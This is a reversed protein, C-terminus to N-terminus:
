AALTRAAEYAKPADGDIRELARADVQLATFAPDALPDFEEVPCGFGYRHALRNAAYAIVAAVSGPAREPHHHFAVAERLTPPLQWWTILQGGCEAHRATMVAAVESAAPRAIGAAPRSALQHILLKGIDHLLGYVFADDRSAGALDALMMAVHATGIGHDVVERGSNGYAGKDSLISAVCIATMVHRASETGVRVVADNISTIPARAGHAASNALQLVRTALVPDKKVVNAIRVPSVHPDTSFELVERAVAPVMPVADRSASWSGSEVWEVWNMAIM